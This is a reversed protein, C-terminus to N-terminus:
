DFLRSNLEDMQAQLRIAATECYQESIEFGIFYRGNKIASSALSGSGMFPDLVLEGANTGGLLIRDILDTPTQAPHAAREASSRNKGSTVKAIQWVDSPNKGLTNCRLKGNKKQNPYKVDPDRIPDLNFTYEKEDKVFWLIKENRPSLRKKCAVGAGYNWVIEQELYFNTLNWLYYTLPVCKGKGPVELYGVNLWFSGDEKTLRYVENMWESSWSVYDDLSMVKEYEKGINYPPSTFTSDLIGDPLTRMAELCDINYIAGFECEYYPAGLVKKILELKNNM